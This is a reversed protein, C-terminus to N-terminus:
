DSDGAVESDSFKRKSRGLKRMSETSSVKPLEHASSESDLVNRQPEAARFWSKKTQTVGGGRRFSPLDSLVSNFLPSSEPRSLTSSSSKSHTLQKVMAATDIGAAAAAAAAPRAVVSKRDLKKLRETIDGLPQLTHLPAAAARVPPPNMFDKVLTHMRRKQVDMVFASSLERVMMEHVLEHLRPDDMEFPRAELGPEQRRPYGASSDNVTGRRKIGKALESLRSRDAPEYLEVDIARGQYINKDCLRQCRHADREAAFLVFWYGGDRVVGTPRYREFFRFVTDESNASFSISSRPIRVAGTDDRSGSSRQTLPAVQPARAMLDQKRREAEDIERLMGDYIGQFTGDVDVLIRVPKDGARISGGSEIAEKAAMRPHPANPAGVFEVRAIGLSSGTSMDYGLRVSGVAGFNLFHVKLQDTTVLPSMGTVAIACVSPAGVSRSDTEFMPMRLICPMQSIRRQKARWAHMAPVMRPDRDSAM